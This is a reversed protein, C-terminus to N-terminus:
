IDSCFNNSWLGLYSHTRALPNLWSRLNALNKWDIVGLWFYFVGALIMAPLPSLGLTQGALLGWLRSLLFSQFLLDTKRLDFPTGIM